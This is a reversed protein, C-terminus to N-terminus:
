IVSKSTDVGQGTVEKKRDMLDDCEWGNESNKAKASLDNGQALVVVLSSGKL